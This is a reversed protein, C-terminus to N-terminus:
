AQLYMDQLIFNYKIFTIGIHVSSKDDFCCATAAQPGLTEVIQFASNYTEAAYPRDVHKKRLDNDPRM